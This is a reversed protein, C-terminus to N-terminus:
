KFEKSTFQRGNDSVLSDILGYRSFLERMKDITFASTIQKTKFVEVFKSYSDIVVLLYFDRVPGAYDIHIRSWVANSSKWPILEAKEPSSQLEQCFNCNNIMREIDEDIKPWWVYSRALAKTKVIGLHSRHLEVM